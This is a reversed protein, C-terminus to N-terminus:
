RYSKIFITVVINHYNKNNDFDFDYEKNSLPNKTNKKIYENTIRNILSYYESNIIEYELDSKENLANNNNNYEYLVNNMIFQNHTKLLNDDDDDDDGDDDDNDDDFIHHLKKYKHENDGSM